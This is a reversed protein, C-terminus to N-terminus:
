LANSNGSERQTKKELRALIKKFADNQQRLEVKLDDPDVIKSNDQSTTEPETRGPVIDGPQTTKQHTKKLPM